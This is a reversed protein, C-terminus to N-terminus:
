RVACEGSDSAITLLKLIELLALLRFIIGGHGLGYALGDSVTMPRKKKYCIFSSGDPQKKMNAVAVGYPCIALSKGTQM